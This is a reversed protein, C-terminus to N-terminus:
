LDKGLEHPSGCMPCEYIPKDPLKDELTIEYDCEKCFGLRVLNRKDLIDRYLQYDPGLDIYTAWACDYNNDRGYIFADHETKFNKKVTQKIDPYFGIEFVCEYM